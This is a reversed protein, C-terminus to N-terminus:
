AYRIKYSLLQLGNDFSKAERTELNVPKISEGFLRTGQTLVIPNVKIKLFDILENELLWGAFQGGGCLYIDGGDAHKLERVTDLSPKVVKVQKHPNEFKLSTSFIYHKMHAYAPQGPKLGFRYGFEYTNRGMIVTDFLQLDKLYQEVGDGEAVFRSIDGGPADIYGDLSSAVYYTINRM